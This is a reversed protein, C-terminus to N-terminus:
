NFLILALKSENADILTKKYLRKYITGDTYTNWLGTPSTGVEPKGNRKYALGWPRGMFDFGNSKVNTFNRVEKKNFM